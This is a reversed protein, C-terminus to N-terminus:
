NVIEGNLATQPDVLCKVIYKTNFVFKLSTMDFLWMHNVFSFNNFICLKILGNKVLDFRM